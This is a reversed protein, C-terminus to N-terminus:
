ESAGSPRECFVRERIDEGRAAREGLEWVFEFLRHDPAGLEGPSRLGSARAAMALRLLRSILDDAAEQMTRGNGHSVGVLVLRCGDGTADLRLPPTWPESM